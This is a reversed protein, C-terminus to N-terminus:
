ELLFARHEDAHFSGKMSTASVLALVPNARLRTSGPVGASTNSWKVFGARKERPNM